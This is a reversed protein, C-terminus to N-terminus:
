KDPATLFQILGQIFQIFGFLIAGWCLYYTGGSSSANAYSAITVILGVVFFAGGVGMNTLGTQKTVKQKQVIKTKGEIYGQQGNKDKVYIWQEGNTELLNLFEVQTGRKLEAIPTGRAAVGYLLAKKENIIATILSFTRTTGAIFGTTGDPLTVQVWQLGRAKSIKGLEAIEDKQLTRIPASETDVQAYLPVQDQLIKVKM